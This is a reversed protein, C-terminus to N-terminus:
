NSKNLLPKIFKFFLAGLVIGITNALVDFFDATRDTTLTGQLFEICIGYLLSGFLIFFSNKISLKQANNFYILWVLVLGFYLLAHLFKDYGLISVSVTQLNEGSILCGILIILTWSCAIFFLFKRM